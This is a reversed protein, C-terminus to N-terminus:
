YVSWDKHINIDAFVAQLFFAMAICSFSAWGYGAELGFIM